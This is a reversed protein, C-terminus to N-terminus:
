AGEGSLVVCDEARFRLGVPEGRRARPGERNPEVAILRGEPSEVIYHIEAGMNVVDVVNGRLINDSSGGAEAGPGTVTM